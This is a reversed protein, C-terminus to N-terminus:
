WYQGKSRGKIADHEGVDGIAVLHGGYSVCNAEADDWTMGNLVHLYCSGISPM